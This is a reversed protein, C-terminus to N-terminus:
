GQKSELAHILATFLDNMPTPISLEKGYASVVASLSDIETKRNSRIDYVMSPYNDPGALINPIVAKEFAEATVGGIGLSLAVAEVERAISLMIIKVGDDRLMAPATMDLVAGTPNLACNVLAKNWIYKMVDPTFSATVLGSKDFLAKLEEGVSVTVDTEKSAGFIIPCDKRLVNARVVGPSVLVGTINLCGVIVNPSYELLVREHGIGNQMSILTTSDGILSKASDLATRSYSSKVMLLIADAKDANDASAFTKIGQVTAETSDVTLSLGDKAVAGMHAAYPDIFTVDGGGLKLLGGLISGMAGAGIVAIKM